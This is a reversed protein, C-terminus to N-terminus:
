YEQFQSNYLEFYKNGLKILEDHTGSEVIDGDEIVLILNANRITSLRHAIVFSTRGEMLNDMANQIDLETKTDVSSTAEDLILMPSNQLMARAITFLQQQGNSIKTQDTLITDLGDPLRKIFDYIKCVKCVENIQEESINKMNYTLNDKISGDFLWADQLVMGFIEHINRRSINKISVDDIKIDGSNIDYFKMLLNILTTKGAGTHGVIAIKQGPKIQANFNKIIIKETNAPYSFVVNEFSVKGKVNSIKICNEEDFNEEKAELFDFIRNAAACVSQLDTLNQTIRTLPQTCNNSYLLFAAVAGFSITSNITLICGVVVVILISFSGAITMLPSMVGSIFQSMYEAKYLASNGENFKKTVIDKAKTMKIVQYGSYMEEIYGNLSGLNNQRLDFYKQSRKM